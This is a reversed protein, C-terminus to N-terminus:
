LPFLQSAASDAIMGQELDMNGYDVMVGAAVSLNHALKLAVVPNIRFYKLSGNMAVARFGTDQGAM